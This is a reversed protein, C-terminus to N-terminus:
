VVPTCPEERSAPAEFNESDDKTPSKTSTEISLPHESLQAEYFSDNRKVRALEQGKRGGLPTTPLSPNANSSTSNSESRNMRDSKIPSSAITSIGSLDVASVSAEDSAEIIVRQGESNHEESRAESKGQPTEADVGKGSARVEIKGESHDEAEVSDGTQTIESLDQAELASPATIGLVSVAPVAASVPTESVMAVRESGHVGSGIEINEATEAAIMSNSRQAKVSASGLLPSSFMVSKSSEEEALTMLSKSNARQVEMSNSVAASVADVTYVVAPDVILRGSSQRSTTKPSKASFKEAESRSTMPEATGVEGDAPAGDVTRPSPSTLDVSHRPLPTSPPQAVLRGSPTSNRTSTNTAGVGSPTDISHFKSSGARSMSVSPHRPGPSSGDAPVSVSGGNGVSNTTSSSTATVVAAAAAIAAEEAAKAEAAQQRLQIKEHLNRPGGDTKRARSLAEIQVELQKQHSRRIREELTRPRYANPFAVM